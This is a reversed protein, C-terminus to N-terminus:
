LQPPLVIGPQNVRFNNFGTVYQSLYNESAREEEESDHCHFLFNHHNDGLLEKVSKGGKKFFIVTGSFYFCFFLM